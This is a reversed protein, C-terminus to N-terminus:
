GKRMLCNMEQIAGDRMGVVSLSVLKFGSAEYLELSDTYHTMGQYLPQVSIESQMAHIADLCGSAGRFCQPDFGQTDMKLLIRRNRWDPMAIPLIHDLRKVEVEETPIHKGMPVAPQLLSNFVSNPVLNITMRTNQDGLAMHFGGWNRDYALNRSLAAFDNTSPEFSYILGDFGIMRLGQAFQGKNAGVDLVCDIGLDHILQKLAAYGEFASLQAPFKLGMRILSLGMRKALESFM